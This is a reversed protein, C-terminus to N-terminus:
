SESAKSKLLAQGARRIRIQERVFTRKRKQVRDDQILDEFETRVIKRFSPDSDLGRIRLYFRPNLPLRYFLSGLKQRLNYQVVSDLIQLPNSTCNSTGCIRFIYYRESMGAHHARILSRIMLKRKEEENLPLPPSETVLQNQVVLREFAMEQTSFFRHASLLNGRLADRLNFEIGAPGATEVSYVFDRVVHAPEGFDESGLEYLKVPQDPKMTVRTQLHNLIPITRKPLGFKNLIIERGNKGKRTRPKSFNFGQGVIADAGNLPVIARWYTGNHYFYDVTAHSENEAILKEGSEGPRIEISRRSSVDIPLGAYKSGSPMVFESSANSM